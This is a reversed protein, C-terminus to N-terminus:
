NSPWLKNNLKSTSNREAFNLILVYGVYATAFGIWGGVVTDLIFHQSIYVRSFAVLIGVFVMVYTFWKEKAFFAFMVALCLATASHGSPFSHHLMLVVGDINPIGGDKFFMAPRHDGAFVSRKLTQVIIGMVLSSIGLGLAWSYRVFLLVLVVLGPVLGHGLHTIYTFALDLYPTHYSNILAHAEEKGLQFHLASGIISYICLGVLFPLAVTKSEQIAKELEM